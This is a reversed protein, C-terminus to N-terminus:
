TSVGAGADCESSSADGGPGCGALVGSPTCATGGYVTAAPGLDLIKPQVYDIRKKETSKTNENM